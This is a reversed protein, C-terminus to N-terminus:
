QFSPNTGLKLQKEKDNKHIQINRIIKTFKNSTSAQDEEITDLRHNIAYQKKFPTQNPVYKIKNKM